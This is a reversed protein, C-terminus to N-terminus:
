GRAKRANREQRRTLKTGLDDMEVVLRQRHEPVDHAYGMVSRIDLWGGQEMAARPDQRVMRTALLHRFWHQTMKIILAADAAAKAGAESAPKALGRALLEAARREGEALIATACRRKGANFGTKNGGSGYPKRRHTLFLPAERDHLRGRWALYDKLVAVASPALAATVDEGNKTGRFTIQERGPALTLDCLRTAYIVSSVRAGTSWEVALQARITIHMADFLARILDARLEAVRRRIRRNPNRVKNDRAFEPLATLGHFKKAFTLFALMGNLWRERTASARGTMRGPTKVDGDVWLRWEEGTIENFRRPGFRATVERVISVATDGLPRSRPHCLYLKAAIAVPDGRRTKGSATAKVEDLYAELEIEAQRESIQIVPLGLSRRVRISRGNVRLTGVAHWYGDREKLWVGRPRRGARKRARNGGEPPRIGGREM